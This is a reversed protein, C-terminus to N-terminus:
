EAEFVVTKFGDRQLIKAHCPAPLKKKYEEANEKTIGLIIGNVESGEELTVAGLAYPLYEKFKAATQGNAVILSKFSAKGSLEVWETEFCGCHNCIIVPPFEVKGCSTCKRGMIKGEDLKEYFTKVVKELSKKEM